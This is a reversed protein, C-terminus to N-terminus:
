HFMKNIFHMSYKQLKNQIMLHFFLLEFYNKKLLAEIITGRVDCMNITDRVDCMNITDRVDCMNITDRM